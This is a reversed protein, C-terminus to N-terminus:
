FNAVVVCNKGIKKGEYLANDVAKICDSISRSGTYDYAAVGFTMTISFSVGKYKLTHRVINERLKEALVRGGEVGTEPLLLLFEEGGWRAVCDQERLFSRMSEATSVLVFDGCDHGYKDNFSKFNDIDCLILSFSKKTRAGRIKEAEIKEWIDRRNSLKTLPDTRATLELKKQAEMLERNKKHLQLNGRDVWDSDYGELRLRFRIKQPNIFSVGSYYFDLRKKGPALEVPRREGAGGAIHISVGDVWFRGEQTRCGPGMCWRSGMGDKENYSDPHIKDILGESFEKLEQKRVRSIGNRGALWLCGPREEVLCLVSNNLLGQRATLVTTVKGDRLRSLGGESGIWLNGKQDPCLARTNNDRLQPNKKRNYLEFNLGDFRVLGDQTGLWLYGDQTQRIAFVSNGPLGAEMGWVQINYQSVKRGPDLAELFFPAWLFLWVLFFVFGNFILRLRSVCM